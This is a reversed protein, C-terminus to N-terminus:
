YSANKPPIKNNVKAENWTEKKWEYVVRINKTKQQQKKDSIYTENM